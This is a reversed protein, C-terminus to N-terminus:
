GDVCDCQTIARVTEPCSRTATLPYIGIVTLVSGEDMIVANGTV